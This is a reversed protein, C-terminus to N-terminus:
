GRDHAQERTLPRFGPLEIPHALLEDIKSTGLPQQPVVIVRVAGRLQNKHAEPIPISGNTVVSVFEVASVIPNGRQNPDSRVLEDYARAAPFQWHSVVGVYAARPRYVHTTKSQQCRGPANKSDVANLSIRM